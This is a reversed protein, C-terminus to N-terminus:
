KSEITTKKEIIKIVGIINVKTEEIKSKKSEEKMIDEKM